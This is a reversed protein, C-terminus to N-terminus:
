DLLLPFEIAAPISSHFIPAPPSSYFEADNGSKNRYDLSRCGSKQSEPHGFVDPCSMQLDFPFRAFLNVPKRWARRHKSRQRKMLSM